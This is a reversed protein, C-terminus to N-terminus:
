VGCGLDGAQRAQQAVATDRVGPYTNCQRGARVGAVHAAAVWLPCRTRGFNECGRRM